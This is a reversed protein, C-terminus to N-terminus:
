AYFIALDEESQKKGKIMTLVPRIVSAQIWWSFCFPVVGGSNTLHSFPQLLLIYFLVSNVLSFLGFLFFFFFVVKFSGRLYWLELCALNIEAIQVKFRHIWTTISKQMQSRDNLMANTVTVQITAYLYLKNMQIICESM